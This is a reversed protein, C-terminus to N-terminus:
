DNGKCMEQYALAADEASMDKSIQRVDSKINAKLEVEQKDKWGMINTAFKAAWAANYAGSFAGENMMAMQADQAADFANRWEPYKYEGAQPHDDLYIADRWNRLTRSTVGIMLAFREITPFKNPVLNINTKDSNEIERYAGHQTFYEFLKQPYENEYKCAMSFSIPSKSEQMM